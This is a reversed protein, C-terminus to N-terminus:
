FHPTSCAHYSLLPNQYHILMSPAHSSYLARLQTGHMDEPTGHNKSSRAQHPSRKPTSSPLPPPNTPYQSSRIDCFRPVIFSIKRIESSRESFTRFMFIVELEKTIRRKSIHLLQVDMFTGSVVEDNCMCRRFGM